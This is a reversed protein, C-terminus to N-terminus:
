WHTPGAWDLGARGSLLGCALDYTLRSYGESEAQM